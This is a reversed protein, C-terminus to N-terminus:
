LLNSRIENLAIGLLDAQDPMIESFKTPKGFVTTLIESAKEVLNKNVLEGWLMKAEEMMEDFNRTAYPNLTDSAEGGSNAVEKDIAEYIANVLEDYTLKVHPAIYKYRSKALFRDGVEDRFFMFRERAPHEETGVDVERIYAILDVMKNVIDFPRSQLAPVIKSYEEGKDNKYTKETSHSIFILGYGSYVLDRFTQAFEKKAQDYAAGWPVEKLTAVGNIGCIYKSCLEWAEDATDIAIAEYKEHLEPSKVLQNVMARWEKWTSVPAVYVNNLANTGMEFGAILVNKFKSALTTKGCGADGYILFMKGRLNKSIQQPQLSLLDIPM